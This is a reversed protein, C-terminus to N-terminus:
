LLLKSKGAHKGAVKGNIHVPTIKVDSLIFEWKKDTADFQSDISGGVNGEMLKM